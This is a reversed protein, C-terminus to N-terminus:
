GAGPPRPSTTRSASGRCRHSGGTSEGADQLRRERAHVQARRRERGADRRHQRVAAGRSVPRAHDPVATATYAPCFDGSLDVTPCTLDARLGGSNTIAFKVGIDEYAARMSDTVVDGVLSECTRGNGTGCQDARPIAKTSDGIKTGLIPALATNLEDLKAQIAADPTMGVTWPRHYDATKYVVGDKGPGIVLRIRTIRIGKARNETVLVGNPRVDDVQLDNHDGIM